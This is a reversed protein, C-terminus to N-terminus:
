GSRGKNDMYNALQKLETSFIRRFILPNLLKEVLGMFGPSTRARSIITVKTLQGERLPDVIFLTEVGQKHDTEVLTRGPESKTVEFLFVRAVGFVNMQIEVRTGAGFGGEIVKLSKFYQKPLIAPHGTFYDSLVEYIEDSSAPIASSVRVEIQNM